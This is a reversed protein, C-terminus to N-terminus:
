KQRLSTYQMQFSCNSTGCLWWNTSTSASRIVGVPRWLAMAAALTRCRAIPASVRGPVSKIRKRSFNRHFNIEMNKFRTIVSFLQIKRLVRSFPQREPVSAASRSTARTTRASRPGDAWCGKWGSPSDLHATRGLCWRQHSQHGRHRAEQAEQAEQRDGAVGIGITRIRNTQGSRDGSGAWEGAVLLIENDGGWLNTEIKNPKRRLFRTALLTLVTGTLTNNHISTNLWNLTIRIVWLHCCSLVVILTWTDRDQHNKYQPSQHYLSTNLRSVTRKRHNSCSIQCFFDPFLLDSAM